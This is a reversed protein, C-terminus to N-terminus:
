EFQKKAASAWNKFFLIAKLRENEARQAETIEPQAEKEGYPRAPYPQPNTGKKAFPHLIPALRGVADYVYAGQLWAQANMRKQRLEEAERYYEVLWVDGDWYEEPTM